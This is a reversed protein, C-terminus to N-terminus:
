KKWTYAVRNKQIKISFHKPCNICLKYKTGLREYGFYTIIIELTDHYRVKCRSCVFLLDNTNVTKTM